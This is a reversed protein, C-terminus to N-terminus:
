YTAYPAQETFSHPYTVYVASQLIFSTISFASLMIVLGIVGRFLWSKAQTVKEENGGATMWLFGAYLTICLFVIGLLGFATRLVSAITFRLDRVGLGSHEGYELGIDPGSLTNGDAAFAPVAAGAIFFLCLFMAGAIFFKSVATM